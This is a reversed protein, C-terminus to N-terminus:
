IEYRNNRLWIALAVFGSGVAICLLWAYFMDDTLVLQQGPIIAAGAEALLRIYRKLLTSLGLSIDMYKRLLIDIFLILIPVLTATLFPSKKAYASALLIYGICPMLLLLFVIHGYLQVIPAMYHGAVVLSSILHGLPVGQSMFVGVGAVILLVSFVINILAVLCPLAVVVVALEVLVNTTGSVPMSRWFLIDREKRDDFLCRHLFTIATLAMILSVLAGNAYMFNVVYKDFGEPTTAMYDTLQAMYGSFSKKESLVAGDITFKGKIPAYPNLLGYFATCLLAVFFVATIGIPVYVFGLKNEWYERKFQAILKKITM